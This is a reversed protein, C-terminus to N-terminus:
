RVWAVETRAAGPPGSVRARLAGEDQRLVWGRVGHSGLVTLNAGLMVRVDHLGDARKGAVYAVEGAVRVAQPEGPLAVSDKLQLVTDEVELRLLRDKRLVLLQSGHLALAQGPRPPPGAALKLAASAKFGVGGDRDLLMVSTSTMVLWRGGDFRVIDIPRGGSLSGLHTLLYSGESQELRVWGSETGAIAGTGDAAIVHVSSGVSLAARLQPAGASALNWVEVSSDRAVWATRRDLAMDRVGEGPLTAQAAV